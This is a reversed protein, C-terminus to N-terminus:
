AYTLGARADWSNDYKADGDAYYIITETGVVSIKQIQWVAASTLNGPMAKGVYTVTLSVEDIRTDLNLAGRGRGSGGGGNVVPTPLKVRDSRIVSGDSFEFVFVIDDDRQEVDINVIVPADIGDSGDQGDAGAAGTRGALGMVGRPGIAGRISKGDEGNRGASGRQGRTGRPGRILTLEEDTLDKFQLKLAAKEDETLHSFRLKLTGREADTLDSFKLRLTDFYGRHEDFIFDRGDRGDRGRPGRLKDIDDADLDSFRLKLSDHMDSVASRVISEIREAHSDFIFDGGDKGDKGDKGRPGRLAGIQEEDLDEFKLSFEEAL